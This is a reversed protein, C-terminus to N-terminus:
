EPPYQQWRHVAASPSTDYVIQLTRSTAVAGATTLCDVVVTNLGPQLSLTYSGWNGTLSQYGANHGNVRVRRTLATLGRGSLQVTPQAAVYLNGIKQAGSVQVTLQRSIVSELYAIRATVYSTLQPITLTDRAVGSAPSTEFGYYPAVSQILPLMIDLRYHHDLMEQIYYFYKPTFDPNEIFRQVRPLTCAFITQTPHLNASDLDWPLLVPRPLSTGNPEFYMYYDDGRTNYIDTEEINMMALCAWFRLWEEHNIYQHMAATFSTDPTNTFVDCLRIVDSFDDAAENTHKEYARRYRNKDPGYYTLDAQETASVYVGRYLNGDFRGPFWQRLFDKNIDQMQIRWGMMLLNPEGSPVGDYLYYTNKDQYKFILYAYQTAPAPIGARRMLDMDLFQCRIWQANLNMNEIGHYPEQPTFQVRYSKRAASRSGKGRLRVGVTYYIEDGCIFTANRLVNSLRNVPDHLTAHDAAKMIIRYVPSTTMVAQGDVQLLFNAAPASPPIARAQLTDDFARMYFELIRGQPQPPLTTGYVGDGAAGDGHLGDDLMARQTFPPSTAEDKYSCEVWVVASNDYARVTVTIPDSPRPVAPSHRPFVLFPPPNAAYCSNRFGPTESPSSAAWSHAVNNDLGPHILELSAGGGDAAEPWYGADDYAVRDVLTASTDYLLITEGGNSLQGGYNGIVTATSAPYRAHFSAISKAVVLYGGPQLTQGVPFTYTVADALSWGALSVTTAGTNHLEIYEKSEDDDPPHYMIENIVVSAAAPMPTLLM